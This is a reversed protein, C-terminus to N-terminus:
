VKIFFPAAILVIGVLAMLIINSVLYPFVCLGIGAALAVGQQQKKGYMCYAMGVLGLFMALLIGSLSGMIQGGIEQIRILPQVASSQPRIPRCPGPGATWGVPGARMANDGAPLSNRDHRCDAHRFSAQTGGPVAVDQHVTLTHLRDPPRGM